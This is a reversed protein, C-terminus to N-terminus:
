PADWSVRRVVWRMVTDLAYGLLGIYTIWALVTDTRLLQRAREIAFGLGSPSGVLEAVIIAAWANGLGIRAGTLIVPLAAPLIVERLVMAPGAGLTRAAWVLRRDVHEVGAVTNLIVPFVAAYFIIYVPVGNGSGFIYLALPIWAIGSIPRLVEVPIRTAARVMPVLAIAAGGGIGIALALGYGAAIRSLSVSIQRWGEGSVALHVSERAVILPSPLLLPVNLWLSLGFWIMVVLLMTRLYVCLARNM